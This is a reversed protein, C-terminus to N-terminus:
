DKKLLTLRKVEKRIVEDLVNYHTQLNDFTKINKDNKAKKLKELIVMPDPEKSKVVEIDDQESEIYFWKAAYTNELIMWADIVKRLSNFDNSRLVEHKFKNRSSHYENFTEIIDNPFSHEIETRKMVKVKDSEGSILLYSKYQKELKKLRAQFVKAIPPRTLFFQKQEFLREEWLDDLDDESDHPFFLLAEKKTM